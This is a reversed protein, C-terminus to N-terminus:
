SLSRRAGGLLEQHDGVPQERESLSPSPALDRDPAAAERAAAPDFAQLFSALGFAYLASGAPVDNM